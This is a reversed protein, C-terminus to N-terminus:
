RSQPLPPPTFSFFLQSVHSSSISALHVFFSVFICLPLRSALSCSRVSRRRHPQPQQRLRRHLRLARTPSSSIKGAPSNPLRTTDSSALLERSHQGSLRLVEDAEFNVVCVGLEVLSTCEAASYVRGRPPPLPAASSEQASLPSPSPSSPAAVSANKKGGQQKSPTTPAAAADKGEARLLRVSAGAAFKGQVGVVGASFLSTHRVVIADSAGADLVIAGEPKLGHAIWKKHSKLPNAVPLFHTGVLEGRMMREINGLETSKIIGTHVGAATAIGAAVLKTTMGGRARHLRELGPQRAPRRDGARHARDQSRPRSRPDSDYLGAVDTLLFLWRAQVLSAVLASLTDNDGVKLESVSVVDNENVVPVIGMRLLERFTNLANVYHHHASLNERTLLVQAIPQSMASFLDDYVRM